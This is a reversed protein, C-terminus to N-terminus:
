ETAKLRILLSSKFLFRGMLLVAGISLGVIMGIWMGAPGMAMNFTLYYGVILGVLLYSVFNIFM